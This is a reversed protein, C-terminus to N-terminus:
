TIKTRTELGEKYRTLQNIVPKLGEPNDADQKKTFDIIHNLTEIIRRIGDVDFAEPTGPELVEAARRALLHAKLYLDGGKGELADLEARLANMQELVRASNDPTATAPPNIEPKRPEMGM